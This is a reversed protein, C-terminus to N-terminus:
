PKTLWRFLTLMKEDEDGNGAVNVIQFNGFIPHQKLKTSLARASAVGPVIWLTHRFIKRFKENSYPYLSDKDNKCLLNLFRDVDHDHIFTGDDHVRFFERFNFAKEDDAYDNM